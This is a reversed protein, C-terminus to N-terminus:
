LVFMSLGLVSGGRGSSTSGATGGQKEGPKKETRVIYVLLAILAGDLLYNFLSFANFGHFFSKILHHTYGYWHLGATFLCLVGTLTSVRQRSFQLCKVPILFGISLFLGGLVRISFFRLQMKTLGIWTIGLTRRAYDDGQDAAKQFWRNAEVRDQPVGHGCYYMVGLDYEARALGQNAAQRYWRASETYDQPVGRGHYYMSGLYEQAMANGQDASLRYWRAAEAYDQAVGKGEYYTLGLVYQARADGEEAGKRDWRLAETYDQPVGRGYYYMYGIGYDAKAYGQDAAKRFWRLAEGYNQPAGQGYYYVHGLDYEAKADGQEAPVRLAGAAETLKREFKKQKYVHWVIAAGCIAVVCVVPTAIKWFSKM